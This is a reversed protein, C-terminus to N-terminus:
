VGAKAKRTKRYDMAAKLLEEVTMDNFLNERRWETYDFADAHLLAIFREAEVLGLNEMLCQIGKNLLVTSNMM